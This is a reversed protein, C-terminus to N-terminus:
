MSRRGKKGGGEEAWPGGPLDPRFAKWEPSFLMAMATAIDHRAEDVTTAGKAKEPPWNASEEQLKALRWAKIDDGSYQKAEARTMGWKKLEADTM